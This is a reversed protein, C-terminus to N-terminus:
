NEKMFIGRNYTEEGQAIFYLNNNKFVFDFINAGILTPLFIKVWSDGSNITKYLANGSEIYYELDSTGIFQNYDVRCSKLEPLSRTNGLIVRGDNTITIVFIQPTCRNRRKILLFRNDNIYVFKEPKHLSQSTKTNGAITPFHKLILNDLKTAQHNWSIGGDHSLYIGDKTLAAISNENKFSITALKDNLTIPHHINTSDLLSIYYSSNSCYLRDAAVYFDHPNCRFNEITRIKSWTDGNNLSSYLSPITGGSEDVSSIIAYTIGTDSLYMNDIRSKDRIELQNWTLGNDDSRFISSYNDDGEYVRERGWFSQTSYLINSNEKTYIKTNGDPSMDFYRDVKLPDSAFNDKKYLGFDTGIWLKDGSYITNIKNKSQLPNMTAIYTELKLSNDNVQYIHGNLKTSTVYENGDNGHSLSAIEGGGLINTDITVWSNGGDVSRILQNEQTYFYIGKSSVDIIKAQGFSNSPHAMNNWTVGGDTSKTYHSTLVLDDNVYNVLNSQPCSIKKFSENLSDKKYLCAGNYLALKNDPMIKIYTYKTQLPPLPPILVWNKGSDKTAYLPCTWQDCAYLVYILEGDNTQIKTIPHTLTKISENYSQIPLNDGISQWNDGGNITKYLGEATAFFGIQESGDIFKIDRIMSKYTGQIQTLPNTSAISVSSILVLTLWSFIKMNCGLNM